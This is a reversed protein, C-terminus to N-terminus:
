PQRSRRQARRAAVQDRIRSKEAYKPFAEYVRELLDPTDWESRLTQVYKYLEDYARNSRRLREAAEHGRENLVFDDATRGKFPVARQAVVAMMEAFSPPGVAAGRSGEMLGALRLAEAADNVEESFPGYDYAYFRSHVAVKQELVFLLKQLRTVGHVATEGRPSSAHLLLVMLDKLAPRTTPPTEIGLSAEERDLASELWDRAVRHYPRRLQDAQSKLQDLVGQELKINFQETQPEDPSSKVDPGSEDRLGEIIWSRALSHYPLSRLSAVRKMRQLVSFPIRLTVQATKPRAVLEPAEDLTDWVDSWDRNLVADRPDTSV